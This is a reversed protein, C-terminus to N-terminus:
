LAGRGRPFHLARVIYLDTRQEKQTGNGTASISTLHLLFIDVKHKGSERSM